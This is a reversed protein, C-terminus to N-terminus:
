NRHWNFKWWKQLKIRNTM